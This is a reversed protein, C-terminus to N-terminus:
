LQGWWNKWNRIILKQEAQDRALLKILGDAKKMLQPFKKESWHCPRLTILSKDKMTSYIDSNKLLDRQLHLM